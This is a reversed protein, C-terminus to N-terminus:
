KKFLNEFAQRADNVRGSPTSGTEREVAQKMVYASCNNQTDKPMVRESITQRIRFSEGFRLAYVNQM